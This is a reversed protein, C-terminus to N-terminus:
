PHDPREIGSGAPNQIADDGTPAATEPTVDSSRRVYNAHLVAKSIREDLTGDLRTTAQSSQLAALLSLIIPSALAIIMALRQTGADDTALFLAAAVVALAIAVIAVITVITPIRGNTM